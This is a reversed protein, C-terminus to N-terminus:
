VNFTKKMTKILTCMIAYLVLIDNHECVVTLHKCCRKCIFYRINYTSMVDSQLYAVTSNDCPINLCVQICLYTRTCWYTDPSIHLHAEPSWMVAWWKVLLVLFIALQFIHGLNDGFAVFRFSFHYWIVIYNRTIANLFLDGGHLYYATEPSLQFSACNFEITCYGFRKERKQFAISVNCNFADSCM